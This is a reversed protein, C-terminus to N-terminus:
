AEGGYPLRELRELRRDFAIWAVDQCHREVAEGSGEVHAGITTRIEEEFAEQLAEPMPLRFLLAAVDAAARGVEAAWATRADSMPYGRSLHESRSRSKEIPVARLIAPLSSLHAPHAEASM